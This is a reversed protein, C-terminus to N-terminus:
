LDIFVRISSARRACSFSTARNRIFRLSICFYIFQAIIPPTIQIKPIPISHIIIASNRTYSFVIHIIQPHLGQLHQPSRHWFTYSVRLLLFLTTLLLFSSVLSKFRKSLNMFLPVSTFTTPFLM